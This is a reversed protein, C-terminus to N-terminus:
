AEMKSIQIILYKQTVENNRNTQWLSHDALCSMETIKKCGTANSVLVTLHTKEPRHGVELPKNKGLKYKVVHAGGSLEMYLPIAQSITVTSCLYTGGAGAGVSFYIM